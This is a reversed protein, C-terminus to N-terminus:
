KVDQFTGSLMALTILTIMVFGLMSFRVAVEVGLFVGYMCLLTYLICMIIFPTNPLFYEKVHHIMTNASAVFAMIFFLALLLGIGRALWKGLLEESYQVITKDPFRSGLFTLLLIVMTGIIFGMMMSTWTDSGIKRM